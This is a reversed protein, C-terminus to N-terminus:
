HGTGEGLYIGFDVGRNASFGFALVGLDFQDGALIENRFSDEFGSSADEGVLVGFAIRAFAIVASALEGIDDFVQGALAGFLKEVGFVDVDLRVGSGLGILGSIGSDQVGAVDDHPEVEIMAAMEGVAVLEVKGALGIVDDGVLGALLVLADIEFGEGAQGFLVLRFHDDGSAASIGADPVELAKAFDAVGNAGDEEDIHGMEGSEDGGSQMGVRAFVGVDDGGSGM